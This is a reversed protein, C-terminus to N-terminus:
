KAQDSTCSVELQSCLVQIPKTQFTNSQKGFITASSLNSAQEQDDIAKNSIRTMTKTGDPKTQDICTPFLSSMKTEPEPQTMKQEIDPVEVESSMTLNQEQQLNEDELKKQEFKTDHETVGTAKMVVQGQNDREDALQGVIENWQQVELRLLNKYTKDEEEQKQLDWDEILRSMIKRCDERLNTKKKETRAKKRDEILKDLLAEKETINDESTKLNSNKNTPKDDGALTKWFDWVSEKQPKIKAFRKGEKLNLFRM